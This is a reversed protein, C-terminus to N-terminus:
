IPSEDLRNQCTWRKNGLERANWLNSYLRMAQNTPFPLGKEQNNNFDRIPVGHISFISHKPNWLIYTHFDM